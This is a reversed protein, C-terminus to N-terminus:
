KIKIRCWLTQIASDKDYTEHAVSEDDVDDEAVGFHLCDGIQVNQIQRHCVFTKEDANWKNHRCHAQSIPWKAVDHALHSLKLAWSIKHGISNGRRNQRSLNVHRRGRDILECTGQQQRNHASITVYGDAM